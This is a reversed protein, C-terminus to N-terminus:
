DGNNNNGYIIIITLMIVMANDYGGERYCHGLFNYHSNRLILIFGRFTTYSNINCHTPGYERFPSGRWKYCSALLKSGILRCLQSGNISISVLICLHTHM